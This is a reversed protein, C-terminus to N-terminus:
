NEFYEASEQLESSNLEQIWSLEDENLGSITKDLYQEASQEKLLGGASRGEELHRSFFFASVLLALGAAAGLALKFLPRRRPGPSEAIAEQLVKSKLRRQMADWQGEDMKYPLNHKLYDEQEEINYSM